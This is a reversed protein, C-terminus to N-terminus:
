SRACRAASRGRPDPSWSRRWRGGVNRRSRAGRRREGDSRPAPRSGPASATSQEAPIRSAPAPPMHGYFLGCMEWPDTLKKIVLSNDPDGPVVRIKDPQPAEISAGDPGCHDFGPHNVWEAYTAEPTTLAWHRVVRLEATHCEGCGGAQLLPFIARAFGGEAGIVDSVDSAGDATVDGADPGGGAGDGTCAGAGLAFGVFALWRASALVHASSLVARRSPRQSRPKWSASAIAQEWNAGDFSGVAWGGLAATVRFRVRGCHCSGEYTRM